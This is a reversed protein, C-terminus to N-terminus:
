SSSFLCVIEMWEIATRQQGLTIWNLFRYWERSTTTRWRKVGKTARRKRCRRQISCCRLMHFDNYITRHYLSGRTTARLFLVDPHLVINQLSVKITFSLGEGRVLFACSEGSPTRHNCAGVGDLTLWRLLLPPITYNCNYDGVWGRESPEVGQIDGNTRRGGDSKMWENICDSDGAFERSVWHSASHTVRVM